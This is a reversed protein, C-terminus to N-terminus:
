PLETRTLHLSLEKSVVSEGVPKRMIVLTLALIPLTDSLCLFRFPIWEGGWRFALSSVRTHDRSRPSGKAFATCTLVNM